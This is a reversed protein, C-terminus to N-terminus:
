AGATQERRRWPGLVLGLALSAMPLVAWALSRSDPPDTPPSLATAGPREWLTLDGKWASRLEFGRAKLGNTARSDGCLVWRLHLSDAKSLVGDLAALGSAEGLPLEDINLYRTGSLASAAVWPLGSDLSPARVRRSLEFRAAGVNLTVYRFAESGPQELVMRAERLATNRHGYGDNSSGGLVYSSAIGLALMSVTAAAAVTRPPAQEGGHMAALAWLAPSFAAALWLWKDAAVGISLHTLSLGALGVVTAGLWRGQWGGLGLGVVASWAVMGWVLASVKSGATLLKSSPTLPGGVMSSFFPHLAIFTLAAAGIASAVVTLRWRANADRSTLALLGAVALPVVAAAHTCVAAVAFFAGGLPTRTANASVWCAGAVMALATATLFPAQGFPFLFLYALPNVATLWATVDGARRSDLREVFLGMSLTLAVPILSITVAYARELSAFPLRAMLSILQHLLPPHGAFSHGLDWHASWLSALSGLAHQTLELHLEHAPQSPLGGLTGYVGLAWALLAAGTRPTVTPTM